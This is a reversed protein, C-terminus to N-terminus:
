DIPRVVQAHVLLPDVPPEVLKALREVLGLSSLEEAPGCGDKIRKWATNNLVMGCRALYRDGCVDICATEGVEVYGDPHRCGSSQAQEHPAGPGAGDSSAPASMRPGDEAASAAASILVAMVTLGFM